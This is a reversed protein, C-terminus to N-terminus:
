LLLHSAILIFISASYKSPVWARVASSYQQNKEDTTTADAKVEDNDSSSQNNKSPTSCINKEFKICTSNVKRQDTIVYKAVFECEFDLIADDKSISHMNQQGNRNSVVPLKADEFTESIVPAVHIQNNDFCNGNLELHGYFNGIIHNM